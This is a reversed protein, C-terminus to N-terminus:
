ESVQLLSMANCLHEVGKGLFELLIEFTMSMLYTLLLIGAGGKLLAGAETVNM